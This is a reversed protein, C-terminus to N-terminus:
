RLTSCTGTTKETPHDKSVRPRDFELITDLDRTPPALHTAGPTWGYFVAEHRYHFDSRGLVFADKLWVLTQRWIGLETLQKAFSLFNPGAPAAVYWAAGQACAKAAHGFVDGLLLELAPLDLADNEITFADKTGGVYAVGYPPDTWVMSPKERSLLRDFVQADASDTVFSNTVGSYGAIVERRLRNPRCNAQVQIKAPSKQLIPPWSGSFSTSRRIM